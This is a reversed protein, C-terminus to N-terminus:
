SAWFRLSQGLDLREEILVTGQYVDLGSFNLYFEQLTLSGSKPKRVKILIFMCQQIVIFYHLIFYRWELTIGHMMTTNCKMRLDDLPGHSPETEDMLEHSHQIQSLFPYSTTHILDQEEVDPGARGTSKNFKRGAKWISLSPHTKVVRCTNVIQDFFNPPNKKVYSACHTQLWSVKKKKIINVTEWSAAGTRM